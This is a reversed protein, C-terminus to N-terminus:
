RMSPIFIEPVNNVLKYKGRRIVLDPKGELLM